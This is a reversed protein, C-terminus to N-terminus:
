SVFKYWISLYKPLKKKCNKRQYFIKVKLFEYKLVNGSSLASIKATHRDLKDKPKTKDKKQYQIGKKVLLWKM